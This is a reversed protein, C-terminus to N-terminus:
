NILNLWIYLLKEGPPSRRLREQRQGAGLGVGAHLTRSDDRVHLMASLLQDAVPLVVVVQTPSTPLDRFPQILAALFLHRLPCRKDLSVRVTSSSAEDSSVKSDSRM